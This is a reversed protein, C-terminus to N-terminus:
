VPTKSSPTVSKTNLEDLANTTDARQVLACVQQAVRGALVVVHLCANRGLDAPKEDLACHHGTWRRQEIKM